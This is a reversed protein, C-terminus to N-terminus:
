QKCTGTPFAIQPFIDIVPIYSGPVRFRPSVEDGFGPFLLSCNVLQSVYRPHLRRMLSKFFPLDKGITTLRAPSTWEHMHILIYPGTLEFKRGKRLEARARGKGETM